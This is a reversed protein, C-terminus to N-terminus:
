SVCRRVEVAISSVSLSSAQYFNYIVHQVDIGGVLTTGFNTFSNSGGDINVIVFTGAGSNITLQNVTAWASSPINFVNVQVSAVGTLTFQGSSVTATGTAAMGAFKSSWYDIFSCSDQFDFANCQQIFSGDLISVGSQTLTGCYVLNGGSIQANTLQANGQVVGTNM